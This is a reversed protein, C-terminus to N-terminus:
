LKESCIEKFSKPYDVELLNKYEACFSDYAAKAMGTKGNRYLVQCKLKLAYEDTKDHSFIVQAIQGLLEDNSAIDKRKSLFIMTEILMNSYNAKFSDLWVEEVFPLLPESLLKIPFSSAKLAIARNEKALELFKCVSLYDCSAGRDFLLYWYISDKELQIGNLEELLSKLKHINVRRNNQANDEPMDSWLIDRLIMNSIGKEDKKSYIVIAILLRKLIPTFQATIDQGEKDWVQFGGLFNIASQREAVVLPPLRDEGANSMLIPEEPKQESRKRYKLSFFILTIFLFGSILIWWYNTNKEQVIESNTLPPFSLSYIKINATDDNIGEITLAYIESKSKNYFLTCFSTIDNFIFPISDGYFEEKGTSIDFSKLRIEANTKSNGFCLAYLKNYTTDIVISNGVVFDDEQPPMEWVKSVKFDRINMKYLDYYNRPGYEQKGHTNGYGGFILLTDSDKFGLGALYRPPINEKYNQKEWGNENSRKKRFLSNKYEYNGYGAFIYLASDIPSIFSNHQSFNPNKYQSDSQSWERREENYVSLSNLDLDYSWLEDNYPNYILQNYREHYANGKNILITDLRNQDIYYKYFLTRNVLYISNEKENYAVQTHIPFHYECKKKWRTHKDILWIANKTKASLKDVTDFVDKGIHEKLPWHAILKSKDNSISIDKISMPPVDHSIFNLHESVGFYIKCKRFDSYSSTAKKLKKGDIDLEVGKSSLSFVIHMWKNWEFSTLYEKPFPSFIRDGEILTLSKATESFNAVLDFSVKDDLIIRFVYGYNHLEQRFMADFSLTLGEKLSFDQDQNLFLSTRHEKIETHSLFEIGNSVKKEALGSAAFLLACIYLLLNKM